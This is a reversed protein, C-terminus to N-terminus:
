SKLKEKEIFQNSNNKGNRLKFKGVSKQLEWALAYMRLVNKFGAENAAGFAYYSKWGNPADGAITVLIAFFRKM